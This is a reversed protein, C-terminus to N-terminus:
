LTRNKKPCILTIPYDDNDFQISTPPVCQRLHKLNKMKEDLEVFTGICASKLLRIGEVDNQLDEHLDKYIEIETRNEFIRPLNESIYRSTFSGGHGDYIGFLSLNPIDNFSGILNHNDEMSSRWGQMGSAGFCLNNEIGCFTKKKTVPQSLANDKTPM